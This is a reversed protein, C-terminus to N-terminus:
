YAGQAAGNHQYVHHSPNQQYDYRGRGSYNGRRNGRNGRNAAELKRKYRQEVTAEARRIKRDDEEDSALDCGLYEDVLAWGAPSKDAMKICKNRQLLASIALRVYNHVEEPIGLELATLAKTLDNVIDVNNNFQIENGKTGFQYAARKHKKTAEVQLKIASSTIKAEAASAKAEAVENQTRVLTDSVSRLQEALSNLISTDIITTAENSSGAGVNKAKPM